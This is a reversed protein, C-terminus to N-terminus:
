MRKLIPERPIFEVIGKEKNRKLVFSDFEKRKKEREKVYDDQSSLNPQVLAIEKKIM